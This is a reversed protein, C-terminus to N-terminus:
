SCVLGEEHIEEAFRASEALAPDHAPRHLTRELMRAGTNSSLRIRQEMPASGNVSLRWVILDADPTQGEGGSALERTITGEARVGGHTAQLTVGALATPAVGQPRPVAVLKLVVPEGDKRLLRVRGSVRSLRWGLRTALWGLFLAGESGLRAGGDSAQRIELHSIAFPHEDLRPEDFFRATLEQWPALRTWALDNVAARGPEARAWRALSLLSSLSTYETDLVVRSADRALAAFVPDDVHVRGLWVLTTPLEPVLLAEVASAIRACVSGKASLRVRESYAADEDTGCVASVDGSLSGDGDDPDLAVVIARAPLSSTVEDVVKTYSDALRPTGAVVVLNMTCVRSRAPEGEKPVWIERLQQEIASLVAAASAGPPVALPPSPRISTM